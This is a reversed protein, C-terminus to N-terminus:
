RGRMADSFGAQDIEYKQVETPNLFRGTSSQERPHSKDLSSEIV